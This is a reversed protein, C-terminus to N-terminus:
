GRPAYIRLPDGRIHGVGLRDFAQEPRNRAALVGLFQPGGRHVVHPFPTTRGAVLAHSYGPYRMLRPQRLAGNAIQEGALMAPSPCAAIAECPALGDARGGCM